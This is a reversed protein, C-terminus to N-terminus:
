VESRYSHSLFELREHIHYAKHQCIYRSRVERKMIGNVKYWAMWLFTRKVILEAPHKCLLKEYSLSLGKHENYLLQTGEIVYRGEEDLSLTANTFISSYEECPVLYFREGMPNILITKRSEDLALDCNTHYIKSM